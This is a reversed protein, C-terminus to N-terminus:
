LVDDVGPHAPGGRSQAPSTAPPSGGDAAMAEVESTLRLNPPALQDGRKDAPGTPRPQVFVQGDTIETDRM